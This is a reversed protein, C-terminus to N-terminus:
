AARTMIENIAGPHFCGENKRSPLEFHLLSPLPVSLLRCPVHFTSNHCFQSTGNPSVAFRTTKKGEKKCALSSRQMSTQRNGLVCGDQNAFLGVKFKKGQGASWDRSALTVSRVTHRMPEGSGVYLSVTIVWTNWASVSLAWSQAWFDPWREVSVCCFEYRCKIRVGIKITCKPWFPARWVQTIVTMRYTRQGNGEGGGLRESVPSKCQWGFCVPRGRWVRAEAMLLWRCNQTTDRQDDECHVKDLPSFEEQCAQLSNVVCTTFKSRSCLRVRGMAGFSISLITLMMLFFNVAMSICSFCLVQSATM